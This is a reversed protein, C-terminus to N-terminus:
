RLEPGAVDRVPQGITGSSKFKLSGKASEFTSYMCSRATAASLSRAVGSTTSGSVQIFRNM